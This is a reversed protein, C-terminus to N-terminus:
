FNGLACWTAFLKTFKFDAQYAQLHSGRFRVSTHGLIRGTNSAGTAAASAVALDLCPPRRGEDKGFGGPAGVLLVKRECPDEKCSGFMSFHFFNATQVTEQDTMRLWPFGLPWAASRLPRPGGHKFHHRARSFTNCPPSVLLVDVLGQDIDKFLDDWLETKSLDHSHHLEIDLEKLELHFKGHALHQLQQRIDGRRSAGAFLYVVRLTPLDTAM